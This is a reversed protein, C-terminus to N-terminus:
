VHTNLSDISFSERQEMKNCGGPTKVLPRNSRSWGALILGTKAASPLAACGGARARRVLVGLGTMLLYLSKLRELHEITFLILQKSVGPPRVHFRCM